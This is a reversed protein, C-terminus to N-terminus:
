EGKPAFIKRFSLLPADETYLVQYTYGYMAANSKVVEIQQEIFYKLSKADELSILTKKGTESDVVFSGAFHEPTLEKDKSVILLLKIFHGADVLAGIRGCLSEMDEHYPDTLILVESRPPIEALLRNIGKELNGNATSLTSRTAIFSLLQEMADETNKAQFFREEGERVDLLGLADRQKSLLAASLAIQRVACDWKEGASGHMSASSDLLFFARLNSEAEYQKTLYKDQRALVTWDIFKPSDGPVYARHQAFDLSFGFDPSKHLGTMFGRVKDHAWWQLGLIEDKNM